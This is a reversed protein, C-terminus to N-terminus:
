RFHFFITQQQKKWILLLYCSLIVGFTRHVRRRWDTNLYHDSPPVGLLPLLLPPPLPPLVLFEVSTPIWGDPSTVHNQCAPPAPLFSPPNHPAWIRRPSPLIHIEGLFSGLDSAKCALITNCELTRTPEGQCRAADALESGFAPRRVVVAVAARIIKLEVEARKRIEFRLSRTRDQSLIPATRTNSIRSLEGGALMREWHLQRKQGVDRATQIESTKM